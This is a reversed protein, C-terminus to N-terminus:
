FSIVQHQQNTTSQAWGYVSRMHVTDGERIGIAANVISWSWGGAGSVFKKSELHELKTGWKLSEFVAWPKVVHNIGGAAMGFDHIAIHALEDKHCSHAFRHGWHGVNAGYTAFHADAIQPSSVAIKHHLLADLHDAKTIAVFALLIVLSSKM